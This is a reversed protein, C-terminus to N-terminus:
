TYAAEVMRRVAEEAQDDAPPPEPTTDADRQFTPTEPMVADRRRRVPRNTEGVRHSRPKRQM